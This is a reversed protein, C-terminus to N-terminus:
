RVSSYAKATAIEETTEFRLANQGGYFSVFEAVGDERMLVALKDKGIREMQREKIIFDEITKPVIRKRRTHPAHSKLNLAELKGRGAKLEKQWRFLTPRSVDAKKTAAEGWEEWFALIKMRRKAEDTIMYRFRLTYEWLTIFGKTDKFKNFQQM